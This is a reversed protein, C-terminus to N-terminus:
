PKRLKVLGSDDHLQIKEMKGTGDSPQNGAQELTNQKLQLVSPADKNDLKDLKDIKEELKARDKTGEILSDQKQVPASAPTTTSQEHFRRLGAKFALAISLLLLVLRFMRWGTMKQQAM